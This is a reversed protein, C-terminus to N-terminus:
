LIRRCQLQAGAVESSSEDRVSEARCQASTPAVDRALQPSLAFTAM